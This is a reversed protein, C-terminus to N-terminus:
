FMKHVEFRRVSVRCAALAAIATPFNRTMTFRVNNVFAVTIFVQLSYTTIGLCHLMLADHSMVKEATLRNGMAVYTLLTVFIVMLSSTFYICSNVARLLSTKRLISMEKRYICMM